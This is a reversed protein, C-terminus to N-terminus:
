FRTEHNLAELLQEGLRQRISKTAERRLRTEDGFANPIREASTTRVERGQGELLATEDRPSSRATAFSM